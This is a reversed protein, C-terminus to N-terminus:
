WTVIVVGSGPGGNNGFGNYVGGDGGYKSKGPRGVVDSGAQTNMNAGAGGGTGNGDGSQASLINSDEAEAIAFPVSGGCGGFIRHAPLYGGGGGGGGAYIASQSVGGRNFVTPDNLASYGLTGGNGGLATVYSGFSTSQGSTGQTQSNKKGGIGGLGVTVSIADTNPLSISVMKIEGGDGGNGGGAGGGGGGGYGGGGGGGGACRNSSNSDDTEGGMGADGGNAVEGYGGGGGGGVAIVQILDGAQLGYMTPDFSGSEEFIALGM